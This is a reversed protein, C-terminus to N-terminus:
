FVLWFWGGKGLAEGLISQITLSIHVVIFYYFDIDDPSFYHSFDILNDQVTYILGGCIGGM